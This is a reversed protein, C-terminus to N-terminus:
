MAIDMKKSCRQLIKITVKLSIPEEVLCSTLKINGDIMEDFYDDAIANESKRQEEHAGFSAPTAHTIESTSVIGTSM